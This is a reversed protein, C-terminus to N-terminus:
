LVDPDVLFIGKAPLVEERLIRNMQEEDLHGHSTLFEERDEESLLSMPHMWAKLHWERDREAELREIRRARRRIDEEILRRRRLLGRVPYAQLTRRRREAEFEWKSLEARAEFLRERKKKLRERELIVERKLEDYGWEAYPREESM